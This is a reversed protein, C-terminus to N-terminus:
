RRDIEAVVAAVLAPVVAEVAPSLGEGWGMVQPQVGLIVLRPLSLGLVEALVLADALGAEHFSLSEAKAKLLVQEPMFRAFEGPPLGMEAADVVIARERGEILDLLGLGVAGADLLEVEPPLERAALERIVRCGVGDDQRLPNGLGIVLLSTM